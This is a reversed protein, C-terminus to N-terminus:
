LLVGASKLSVDLSKEKVQDSCQLSRGKNKHFPDSHFNSKKRLTWQMM